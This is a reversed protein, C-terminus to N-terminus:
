GAKIQRIASKALEDMTNLVNSMAQQMQSLKQMDFKIKEFEINRSEQGKSGGGEGGGGGGSEAEAEAEKAAKELKQLREEIKKQMDEVVKCMLAFVRDEFYAGGGGAEAMLALEADAGSLFRQGVQNRSLASNSSLGNMSGGLADDDFGMSQRQAMARMQGLAQQVSDTAETGGGDFADLQKAIQVLQDGVREMVMQTRVGGARGGRGGGQVGGAGSM